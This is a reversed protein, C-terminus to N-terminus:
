PKLRELAYIYFRGKDKKHYYILKGDDTVAPAEAFGTIAKIEEPLGFPEDISSRTSHFSAFRPASLFDSGRTFYLTLGDSSISAAYELDDSNINKFTTDVNDDSVFKGNELSASFFYSQTPPPGDGFWTQTSYLTQGDASIEIDMNLWGPINLSLEPVPRIDSVVGDIFKGRYVTNFNHTQNYNSISVYYFNYNRDMTPVGDVVSTNIGKVEGKFRFTLDDIREAYFIDKHTEPTDHEDSNFFLYRGDRSIFPEMAGFDLGIINVKGPQGFIQDPGVELPDDLAEFKVLIKDLLKSAKKIKQADGLVKVQKMMPVIASVDKGDEMAEQLLTMAMGAKRQVEKAEAMTFASVSHSLSYLCLVLAFTSHLAKLAPYNKTKM